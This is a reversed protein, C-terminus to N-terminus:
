HYKLLSVIYAVLINFLSMMMTMGINEVMVIGIVFTTEPIALLFGSLPLGL